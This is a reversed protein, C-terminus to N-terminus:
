LLLCAWKILLLISVMSGGAASSRRVFTVVRGGTVSGENAEKKWLNPWYLITRM